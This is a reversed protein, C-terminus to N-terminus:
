NNKNDYGCLRNNNCLHCQIPIGTGRVEACLLARRISTSTVAQWGGDGNSMANKIEEQDGM